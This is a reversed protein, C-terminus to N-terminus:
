PRKTPIGAKRVKELLKKNPATHRPHGVAGKMAEPTMAREMARICENAKEVSYDFGKKQLKAAGLKVAEFLAKILFGKAEELFDLNRNYINDANVLHSPVPAQVFVRKQKISFSNVKLVSGAFSEFSGPVQFVVVVCPKKADMQPCNLRAMLTAFTAQALEPGGDVASIGIM